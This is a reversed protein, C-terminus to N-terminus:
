NCHVFSAIPSHSTHDDVLTSNLLDYIVKKNTTQLIVTM